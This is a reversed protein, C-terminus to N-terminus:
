FKYFMVYCCFVDTVQTYKHVRYMNDLRLIINEVTDSVTYQKKDPRDLWGASFVLHMYGTAQRRNLWDVLAQFTM